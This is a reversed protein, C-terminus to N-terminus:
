GVGSETKGKTRARYPAFARPRVQLKRKGLKRGKASAKTPAGQARRVSQKGSLAFKARWRGKEDAEEAAASSFSAPTRAAPKAYFPTVPVTPKRGLPKTLGFIPKEVNASAGPRLSQLVTGSNAAEREILNASAMLPPTSLVSPTSALESSQAPGVGPSSREDSVEPNSTNAIEHNPLSETTYPQHRAASKMAISNEWVIAPTSGEWPSPRRRLRFGFVDIAVTSGKALAMRGPNPGEVLFVTHLDPIPRLADIARAIV